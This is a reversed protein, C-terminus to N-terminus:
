RLEVEVPMFRELSELTRELLYVVEFELPRDTGLLRNCHMHVCSTLFSSPAAAISDAHIVHRVKGKLPLLRSTRAQLIVDLEKGGPQELLWAKNGVIQQADKRFVHFEARLKDLKTGLWGQQGHRAARYLALRGTSEVGLSALLDEVTLLALDRRPFRVLKHTCLASIDAVAESDAAFISEALGIGALGHYRELEREYGEFVFTRLHGTSVLQRGWMALEPLLKTILTNPDGQFRLRLHPDPDAYRIFFWSDALGCRLAEGTFDRVPGALLDNHRTQGAYLKIYLWDSGLLHLREEVPVTVSHALSRNQPSTLTAVTQRRKMPIVFESVYSGGEGRLWSQDFSPLMEQLIVVGRDYGRKECESALDAVSLPNSLDLLLRNDGDSLYVHRPVDWIERWEQLQQYQKAFDPPMTDDGFVAAPLRWTAPFLVSRGYRLRPLFPSQTAAGWDFPRLGVTGERAVEAMFRCVNPGLTYNLMHTNTVAIERNRAISRLYFSNGRIGVVLDDLPITDERPM